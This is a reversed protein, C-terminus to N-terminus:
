RAVALLYVIGLVVLLMGIIEGRSSKEKFFLMSIALTFIFEVQGLAKVYAGNQITIATFWGISGLTSMGGVFIGVKWQQAMIAFQRRQTALLYTGMMLCQMTILTVLTLAAPYAYSDLRLSLSAERIFLVALAFGLGSGIGVAAAKNVLRGLLSAQQDLGTRVVTITIVGAVSIAIALWGQLSIAAGFFLAGVVATLFAETRAYTTGVAFNRLSFLYVLLMTAVIQSVSGALCYVFFIPPFEPLVAGQLRKVVTLYVMAFPLGYVFRVLTVGYTTLHKTLHKQGGTRLAQSMAAMLTLYVWAWGEVM